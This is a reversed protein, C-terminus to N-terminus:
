ASEPKWVGTAQKKIVPTDLKEKEENLSNEVNEKIGDIDLSFEAM